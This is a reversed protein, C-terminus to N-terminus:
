DTFATANDNELLDHYNSAGYSARLANLYSFIVYQQLTVDHVHPRAEM